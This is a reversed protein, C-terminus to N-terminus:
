SQSKRIITKVNLYVKFQDILWQTIKEELIINKIEEFKEKDQLFDNISNNTAKYYNDLYEKTQDDSIAIKKDKAIEEFVLGKTIVKKAIETIKADDENPYNNKIRDKFEALEDKNFSIKYNEVVYQMILNFSNEKIIIQDIQNRIMEDAAQPYMQKIKTAHMELMKADAFLEEIHFTKKYDIKSLRKVTSKFRSM